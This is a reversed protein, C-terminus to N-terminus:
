SSVQWPALAGLGQVGAVFITERVLADVWPALPSDTASNERNILPSPRKTTNVPMEWSKMTLGGNPFLEPTITRRSVQLPCGEPQM